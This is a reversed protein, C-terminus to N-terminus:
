KKYFCAQNNLTVSLLIGYKEPDINNKNSEILFRARILLEKAKDSSIDIMASKNLEIVAKELTISNYESIESM